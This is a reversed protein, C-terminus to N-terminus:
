VQKLINRIGIHKDELLYNFNLKFPNFDISTELNNYNFNEYNQDLSFNYKLNINNNLKLTSSGVLDSIKEDLSSKSPMAKNEKQNFIQAVSLDFEKASGKINYDFGLASSLGTEFNNEADIRDMSFAAAPDLRSGGTEKRM